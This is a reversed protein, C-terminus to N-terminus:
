GSMVMLVAGAVAFGAHLLIMFLPPPQRSIRFGFVFLGGILAMTALLLGSNFLKGQGGAFAAAVLVAWGSSVLGGHIFGLHRRVPQRRLWRAALWGGFVIGGLLMLLGARAM